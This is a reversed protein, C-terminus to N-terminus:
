PSSSARTADTSGATSSDELMEATLERLERAVQGLKDADGVNFTFNVSRADIRSEEERHVGCVKLITRVTELQVAHDPETATLIGKFYVGKRANALSKLKKSLFDPPTAQSVLYRIRASVDARNLLANSSVAASHDQATYIEQYLKAPTKPNSTPDTLSRAVKRAYAEHRINSLKM